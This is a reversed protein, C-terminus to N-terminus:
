PSFTITSLGGTSGEPQAAKVSVYVDHMGITEEINATGETAFADRELKKGSATLTTEAIIKGNPSDLRVEVIDKGDQGSSSGRFLLKKIDTLDINDFSIYGSGSMTVLQEENTETVQAGRQQDFDVAKLTNNRFVHFKQGTAAGVADAGKDTYMAKLMYVGNSGNQRHNAPNFSGDVPLTKMNGQEGFSLIYAVMMRANNLSISPHAAMPTEGWVGSGGNIVKNALIAIDRDRKRYKNSIDAYSPGISKKNPAHCAKCDSDAILTAGTVQHQAEDDVLHGLVAQKTVQEQYETTVLVATPNIQGGAISGDEQDTVEVKYEINRGDWYFTQNGTIEFTIEPLNNGAQIEITETASGGAPDSLTLTVQYVGPAQFTFEPHPENSTAGNFFEWQYTLPDQDYDESGQSSFQVTLPTGGAIKTASVKAVPDRNGAQYDIRVLRADVNQTFWGTGYELLYLKGDPGYNFDMPNNFEVEAMFPEIKDLDGQEDLTIFFIKSRIWDYFMIKGDFYRPYKNPTDPFYEGYYVPGAMANKGGSGVIPWEESDGYSYYILAEKAPPLTQM